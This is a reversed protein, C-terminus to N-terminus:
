FDPPSSCWRALILNPILWELWVQLYLPRFDALLAFSRSSGLYILEPVPNLFVAMTLGVMVKVIAGQPGMGRTVLTVAIDILWLAFLVSLV